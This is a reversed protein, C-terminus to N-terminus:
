ESKSKSTSMSWCWRVYKLKLKHISKLESKGQDRHDLLYIEIEICISFVFFFSKLSNFCRIFKIWIQYIQEICCKLYEMRCWTKSNFKCIFLFRKSFAFIISKVGVHSSCAVKQDPTLRAVTAGRLRRIPYSSLFLSRPNGIDTNM